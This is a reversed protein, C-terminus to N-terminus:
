KDLSFLIRDLSNSIQSLRKKVVFKVVNKGARRYVFRMMLSFAFEALHDGLSVLDRSAEQTRPTISIGQESGNDICAGKGSFYDKGIFSLSTQAPRVTLLEGGLSCIVSFGYVTEALLDRREGSLDEFVDVLFDLPM